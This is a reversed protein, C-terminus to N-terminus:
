VLSQKRVAVFLKLGFELRDHNVFTSPRNMQNLRTEFNGFRRRSAILILAKRYLRIENGSRNLHKIEILKPECECM